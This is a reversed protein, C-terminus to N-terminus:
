AFLYPLARIIRDPQGGDARGAGAGDVWVGFVGMEMPALVDFLLNDGIAWTNAADADLEALLTRYVAPDPKGAGFEGEILVAEFYRALGFREIKARQAPGAGNTM